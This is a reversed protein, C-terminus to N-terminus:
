QLLDSAKATAHAQALHDQTLNQSHQIVTSLMTTRQATAAASDPTTSRTPNLKFIIQGVGPLLNVNVARAYRFKMIAPWKADQFLRM